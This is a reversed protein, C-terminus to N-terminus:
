AAYNRKNIKLTATNQTSHETTEEDKKKKKRNKKVRLESKNYDDLTKNM